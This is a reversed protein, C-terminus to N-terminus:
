DESRRARRRRWVRHHRHYGAAILAARALDDALAGVPQLLEDLSEVDARDLVLYALELDRAQRERDELAAAAQGIVGSGLYENRPLGNVRRSRYYYNGARVTM